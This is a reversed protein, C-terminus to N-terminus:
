TSKVGVPGKWIMKSPRLPEVSWDSTAMSSIDRCRPRHASKAFGSVGAGGVAPGPVVVSLGTTGGTLLEV